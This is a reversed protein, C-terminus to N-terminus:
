SYSTTYNPISTKLLKVCNLAEEYKIELFDLSKFCNDLNDVIEHQENLSPIPFSYQRLEPVRVSEVTVGSKVANKLLNDEHGLLMYRVYEPIVLSNPLFAKLDQNITTEVRNICVPLSHRLIGSRVVILVSNAPILHMKYKNLGLPTICLSSGFLESQKMDKPTIWPIDGGWFEEVNRRPTRGGIFKGLDQLQTHKWEVKGRQISNIIESVDSLSRKIEDSIVVLQELRDMPSVQKILRNSSPNVGALEFSEKLKNVPVTWSCVSDVKANFFKLFESFHRDALRNNKSIKKSPACEYFWTKKTTSNSDFFLVICRVASYPLFSGSPLRLITHLNFEDLLKLRIDNYGFEKKYLFREPVVVAARGGENLSMMVLQLFLIESANSKVPFEFLLNDSDTNGFPPNTIVIDHKIVNGSEFLRQNLSNKLLFKPNFIGHGLLNVFGLLYGHSTIENGCFLDKQKKDGCGGNLKSSNRYAHKYVEVLFGGTGAAPDYISEFPKPALADVIARVLPRPTQFEGAHGGANILECLLEDYGLSFDDFDEKKEFSFSDVLYLVERLIRESRIKNRLGSFCYGVLEGIGYCYVQSSSLSYLYPFLDKEVFTSFKNGVAKDQYDFNNKSSVWTSWRFDHDFCFDFPNNCDHLYSSDLIKLLFIWSLQETCDMVGFVGSDSRLLDMARRIKDAVLIM